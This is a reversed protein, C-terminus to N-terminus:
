AAETEDNAASSEIVKAKTKSAGATANAIEIKRPKLVEPLERVLDITLLGNELKAAAVRVHDALGFRREFSREAIGRHLYNRQADPQKRAGTVILSNQKYEITLDDPSFGAVALEIRFADEATQEINFPPYGPAADLRAAQDMLSAIRDFGVLTRYLPNLDNSAM